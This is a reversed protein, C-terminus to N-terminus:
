DPAENSWREFVTGYQKDWWFCSLSGAEFEWTYNVNVAVKNKAANPRSSGKLSQTHTFNM